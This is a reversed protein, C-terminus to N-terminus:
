SKPCLIGAKPFAETEKADKTAGCARLFGILHVARWVAGAPVSQEILCAGDYAAQVPLGLTVILFEQLVRRRYITMASGEGGPSDRRADPDMRVAGLAPVGRIACRAKVM